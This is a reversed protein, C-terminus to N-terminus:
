CYNSYSPEYPARGGDGSKHLPCRAVRGFAGGCDLNLRRRPMEALMGFLHAMSTPGGALGALPTKSRRGSSTDSSPPAGNAK